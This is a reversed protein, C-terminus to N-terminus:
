FPMSQDDFKKFLAVMERKLGESVASLRESPLEMFEGKSRSLLQGKDNFIEARATILNQRNEEMLKGKVTLPEGILVPKIYKVEMKRTVFFVRKFYLITWSMVEDLVTSVIGGHAMNDWGEHYQGLTIDSCISNGSRYFQLNLGIPNATGCAFCRYGEIKPIRIKEEEMVEQEKRKRNQTL